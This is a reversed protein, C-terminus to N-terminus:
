KLVRVAVVVAGAATELSYGITSNQLLDNADADDITNAGAIAVRAGVTCGGANADKLDFIGNTYVALTTSGDNAVKESVAIGAIPEDAATTAAATRPDTIKMITGKVVATANDVTYRIPDGMNGLLEIIVAENAM